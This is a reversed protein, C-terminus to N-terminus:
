DSLDGIDHAIQEQLTEVEEKLSTNEKELERIRRKLASDYNGNGYRKELQLLPYECCKDFERELFEFIDEGQWFKFDFTDKFRNLYEKYSGVCTLCSQLKGNLEHTAAICEEAIPKFNRIQSFQDNVLKELEEDSIREDDLTFYTVTGGDKEETILQFRKNM